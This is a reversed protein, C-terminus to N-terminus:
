GEGGVWVDFVFGFDLREETDEGQMLGFSRCCVLVVYKLTKHRYDQNTGPVICPMLWRAFRAVFLDSYTSSRPEFGGARKCITTSAPSERALGGDREEEGGQGLSGM